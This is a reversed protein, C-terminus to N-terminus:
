KNSVVQLLQIENYTFVRKGGITTGLNYRHSITNVVGASAYGLLKAVEATTYTKSCKQIFKYACFLGYIFIYREGTDAQDVIYDDNNIDCQFIYDDYEDEKLKDIRQNILNRQIFLFIDDVDCEIGLSGCTDKTEISSIYVKEYESSYGILFKYKNGDGPSVEIITSEIQDM